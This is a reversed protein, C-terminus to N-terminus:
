VVHRFSFIQGVYREEGGALSQHGPLKPLAETIALIAFLGGTAQVLNSLNARSFETNRNHKVKNYESYWQLPPNETSWNQFPKLYKIDPRWTLVGIEVTELPFSTELAKYDHINMDSPNKTSGLDVLLEKCVSEFETCTRLFLEYIRHSFSNINADTPEVFESM